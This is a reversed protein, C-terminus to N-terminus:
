ETKIVKKNLQKPLVIYETTNRYNKYKITMSTEMKGERKSGFTKTYIVKNDIISIYM